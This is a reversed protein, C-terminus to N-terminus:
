FPYNDFLKQLHSDQSINVPTVIPQELVAQWCSEYDMRNERCLPHFTWRAEFLRHVIPNNVSLNSIKQESGLPIHLSKFVLYPLESCYISDSKMYFVFNYHRGLYTKAQQIIAKRQMDSLDPYRLITIYEGWGRSIYNGLPTERVPEAAEIVYYGDARQEIIGIHTYLSHTAFIIAPSQRDISTQFILDGSKLPPLTSLDTHASSGVEIYIVSALFLICLVLLLKRM